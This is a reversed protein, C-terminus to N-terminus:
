VMNFENSGCSGASTTDLSVYTSNVSSIITAVNKQNIDNLGDNNNDGSNPATLEVM